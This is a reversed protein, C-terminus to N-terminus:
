LILLLTPVVTLGVIWVLIRPPMAARGNLVLLGYVVSQILAMCAGVTLNMALDNTPRLGYAVVLGVALGTVTALCMALQPWRRQAWRAATLLTANV